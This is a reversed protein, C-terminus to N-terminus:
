SDASAGGEDVARRALGHRHMMRYMTKRSVHLKVAAVSVNWRCAELTRRLATCEAVGLIDDGEERREEVAPASAADPARSASSPRAATGLLWEDDFNEMGLVDTESLALMTRLVNRLQRVNGPWDHRVLREVLREELRVTRGPGAEIQALRRVIDAVDTRKRLPPMTLSVGNLRYYLDERFQGSALMEAPDRHTASVIRIDVPVPKDGGLPLVERDEIVTLLRAQLSLPMDGIEDLFLTGGSAQLIRGSNGQRAAGTFAGPRYGFLESEILLEPIAACNVSVFPQQARKSSHHIAKAFFGKGTGTEGLLLVSIDRDLVRRAVSVNTAVLADGAHSAELPDGASKRSQGPVARTAKEPAQVTAFLVVHGSRMTVMEPRSLPRTSLHQLGVVTTEFISDVRRGCLTEHDRHGLLALASRNAGVISGAEDFALVGEGFTSVFEAHPHFRMMYHTRCSALLARNEINQAALDILVLTHSQAATSCGSIDLAALLRGQADFIPAASCTLETNQLLFHESRDIVIPRQTMLCTGMGNTGLERESWVAGERFGSRRATASFAPDGVYCLIVGESDTLMIGCQSHQMQRALNLMEIRAIPLLSGLKERRAQLDGHEVIQPKKVQLPDLSYSGLCRSWSHRVALDVPHSDPRGRVALEIRRVHVARDESSHM